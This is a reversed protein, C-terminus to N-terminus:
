SLVSTDAAEGERLIRGRLYGHLAAVVTAGGIAVISFKAVAPLSVDESHALAIASVFFLLAMTGLYFLSVKERVTSDRAHKRRHARVGPLWTYRVELRKAANYSAVLLEHYVIVDLMWLLGVGLASVGALMAALLDRGFPTTLDKASYIFGVGALAALLWTSTMTRYHGQITNFHRQREALDTMVPWVREFEEKPGEHLDM